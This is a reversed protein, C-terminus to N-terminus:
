VTYTYWVAISHSPQAWQNEGTTYNHYYPVRGEGVTDFFQYWVNADPDTSAGGVIQDHFFDAYKPRPLSTQVPTVVSDTAVRRLDIVGNGADSYAVFLCQATIPSYRVPSALHARSILRGDCFLSLACPEFGVTWTRNHRFDGVSLGPLDDVPTDCYLWRADSGEDLRLAEAHWMTAAGQGVATMLANRFPSYTDSFGINIQTDATIHPFHLVLSTLPDSALTSCWICTFLTDPFVTPRMVRHVPQFPQLGRPIFAIAYRVQPQVHLLCRGVLCLCLRQRRCGQFSQVQLQYACPLTSSTLLMDFIGAFRKNSTVASPMSLRDLLYSALDLLFTDPLLELYVRGIQPQVHVFQVVAERQVADLKIYPDSFAVVISSAVSLDFEFEEEWQAQHSIIRGRRVKVDFPALSFTWTEVPAVASSAHVFDELTVDHMCAALRENCLWRATCPRAFNDIELHRLEADGVGAVLM